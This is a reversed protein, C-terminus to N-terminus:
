IGRPLANIRRVGSAVLGFLRPGIQQSGPATDWLTSRHSTAPSPITVPSLPCTPSLSTRWVSEAPQRVRGLSRVPRHAEQTEM